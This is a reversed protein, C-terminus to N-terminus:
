VTGEVDERLRLGQAFVEALIFAGLGALLAAAPLEFGAAGFDGFRGPPLNNFLSIRLGSNFLEVLPAGLVLLFGLGRLRKVNEPGFPDGQRVSRALGWLLWLGAVFLVWPGVDMGASLLVQETTPDEVEVTIDPWGQLRVGDELEVREPDLQAKADLTGSGILMQGYEVIKFAPYVFLALVLLFTVFVYGTTAAGSSRPPTM